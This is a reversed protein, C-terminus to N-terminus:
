YSSVVVLTVDRPVGGYLYGIRDYAAAGDKLFYEETWLDDSGPFRGSWRETVQYEGLGAAVHEASSRCISFSVLRDKNEFTQM